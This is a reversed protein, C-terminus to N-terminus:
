EDRLANWPDIRSARWAPGYGAAIAAAVLALAAGVIAWPDNPKMEFLFSKVFKTTALAVPVGIALGVAAMVCVERLVMWILRRREAGLAMRLGIENTRRAVSYAMTGYLGVCAIVVALFAFATCLLAFTREQGITQEIAEEQTRMSTVPIRSDAQRVVERAASALSMPDGAARLAFVLYGISRPNYTYPLYAVPPLKEKLSSYRANRAVGVIEIDRANAGGGITCHKGIPNAGAFYTKVFEENVVAVQAGGSVDREDVPRGLLVPIQMTGFFNSAIGLTSVSHESGTYGPVAVRTGSVTHTVLALTSATASRVGPVSSLREHLDDLFRTLAQDRYGAQRADVAFLLIRERNFGLEVSNLNSLTRIFLGAAVLLLLSVAIQAVVLAQSLSVRLWSGIRKRAEGARAQKLASTLDVRTSQMAPALGFLVGTLLALGLTVLLVRWNLDASLLFNERGNALLMTLGRIGWQAFLLGLLGGLSALLLSETLLQRVIRSRGAGLSLRIAMERRRGAARALLLNALNACAITLILAVLTMLIYLPKSYQRRLNDLGRSADEVHLQPLDAREKDNAAQAGAFRDLVPALAAQAQAVTVGPKLRGLIECWYYKPDTYKARPDGPYVRDVLISTRQPLYIDKVGGPSIGYFGPPTVGVIRYPVGNVTATEGIARGAAGFRREAFGYSLLAVPVATENDDDAGILRGAAPVLGLTGFFGGSVYMGEMASGQNQILVTLRYASNFGAVPRLVPNDARLIEFVGYPLNPSVRGLAPDDWLSGNISEVVASRGKAHWQLVVLSQPDTVPLTRVLIADMFSYIATNAGIGLALSLTAMAAFLRNARLTRFAYRLDQLM